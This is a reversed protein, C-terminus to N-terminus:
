IRDVLSNGATKSQIKCNMFLCPSSSTADGREERRKERREGREKRKQRREKREKRNRKSMILNKRGRM